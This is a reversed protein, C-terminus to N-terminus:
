VGRAVPREIQHMRERMFASMETESRLLDALTLNSLASEISTQLSDWLSRLSCGPLHTCSAAQGAHRVCFNPGYLRGGLTELVSSITVQSAPRALAYGGAQGRVSRVLGAIRLIRMLKAVNPVSLGEARSIEPISLSTGNGRSAM